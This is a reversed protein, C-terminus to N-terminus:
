LLDYKICGIIYLYLLFVPIENCVFPLLVWEPWKVAAMWGCLLYFLLLALGCINWSLLRAVGAVRDRREQLNNASSAMGAQAEKQRDLAALLTTAKSLGECTAQGVYLLLASKFIAQVLVPRADDGKAGLGAALILDGMAVFVCLGTATRVEQKTFGATRVVSWGKGVLLLLATSSLSQGLCLM